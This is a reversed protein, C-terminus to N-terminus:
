LDLSVNLGLVIPELLLSEDLLILKLIELFLGIGERVLVLLKLVLKALFHFRILLDGHFLKLLVFLDLHEFGFDVQKLGGKPLNDLVKFLFTLQNFELVLLNDLLM